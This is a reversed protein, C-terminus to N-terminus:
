FNIEIQANFAGLDDKDKESGGIADYEDVKLIITKGNDRVFFEPSEYMNYYKDIQEKTLGTFDEDDVGAIVIPGAILDFVRGDETKAARSYPMHMIKGCENCLLAVNDEYPYVAEVYGGVLEKINEFKNEIKLIQPRKGAEIFLIDINKKM